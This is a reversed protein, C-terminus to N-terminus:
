LMKRFQDEDIVAVELKKAKALKSGPDTGCLLYDTSGSVSGTVKGGNEEILNKYYNRPQSLTGTIVFIKGSLKGSTKSSTYDPFQVGGAKMKEIMRRNGEGALFDIINKAIVRGIGPINELTELDARRFKEFSGFQEALLQAATEGVGIIGLANLIRPLSTRRSRDIADIINQAKKEAMLDLPLLQEKTLYFLDAPEAVLKERILQRALKDGLGEIDFGGKSAFHILRGEVQAPCAPNLCRHAAEGELRVIAEGCSPCKAPYKVKRSGEPRKDTKVEVVEPIVDGARRIIVTDGLHIELRNLEDENHLSANSVTVGSVRTPKLKAIPTIVGTRGVSFEVTQIVSEALEAKFKWAVAWRPARSIQGLLDQAAFDNVKVVMGDIEYDLEPRLETLRQFEKEVKNLGTITKIHENILFGEKELFVFTDSQRGLGPLTTDSVGYAYFLLPRAATIKPDLQRLSGAAGNRPNALPATGNETLKRNLKEFASKRMIVEGRVELLPYTRATKDSLKLPINKITKLNLTINEGTVGDGRTSGLTFWGNEYVLEVALGDLKPETVYEINETKELGERVRRDFEAFEEATTVKQLSLMPVRRRVPEFKKSPETGVRQSPSDPTVLDPHKKEIELLRDFLIDYEADSIEPRDLVYYLRNHYNIEDKLKEYESFLKKDPQAM